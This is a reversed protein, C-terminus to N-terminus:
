KELGAAWNVAVSIPAPTPPRDTTTVLFREGDPSVDYYNGVSGGPPRLEFLEKPTGIELRVGTTTVAGAMLRNDPALHYIEKGHRRWRPVSGGGASVPVKQGPGPFPMVYVEPRGSEDSQFVISRDDPSFRANSEAASTQLLPRPKRDGTLPLAWVDGTIVASSRFSSSKTVLIVRGDRSWSTPVHNDPGELLVEQGTSNIPKQILLMNGLQLPAAFALRSGDPFWVAAM